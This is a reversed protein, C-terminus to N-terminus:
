QLSPQMVQRPFFRRFPLVIGVLAIVAFVGYYTGLPTANALFMIGAIAALVLPYVWLAFWAWREGKRFSAYAIVAVLLNLGFFVVGVLRLLRTIYDAVEPSSTALATWEIGTSAQFEGPDSGGLIIFASGAALFVAVIVLIIWAYKQYAPENAQIANTMEKVRRM